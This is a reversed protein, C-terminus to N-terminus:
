RERLLMAAERDCVVQVRGHTQLASAPVAETVPGQLAVALARAKAPGTTALVIERASLLTAIGMTLAEEPVSTGAPFDRANDVRTSAALRVRRTRCDLPSGPENFGIHGNRGLGLLQLDIGGCGAILAEYRAAEEDPDDALGDPIHRASERLDIHAFLAEEMYAHFSAPDGSGLGVYEDINFSSAHAFRIRGARYAEVLRAYIPRPTAGTALGLRLWPNSSLRAEILGAVHEAVGEADDCVTLQPARIGTM